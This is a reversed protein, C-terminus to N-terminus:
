TSCASAPDYNRLRPIVDNVIHEFMPMLMPIFPYFFVIETIGIEQYRNVIEEFAGPM